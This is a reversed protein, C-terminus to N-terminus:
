QLLWNEWCHVEQIRKKAKEGFESIKEESFREAWDILKAFNGDDKNWCLVTGEAVERNFGGDYLLNIKAPLEPCFSSDRRQYLSEFVFYRNTRSFFM